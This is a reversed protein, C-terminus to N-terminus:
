YKSTCLNNDVILYLPQNYYLKSGSQKFHSNVNHATAQWLTGGNSSANFTTFINLITELLRM